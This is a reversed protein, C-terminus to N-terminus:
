RCRKTAVVDRLSKVETQLTDLSERIKQLAIVTMMLLQKESCASFTDECFSCDWLANRSIREVRLKESM